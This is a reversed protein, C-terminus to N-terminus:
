IMPFRHSSSTRVHVFTGERDEQFFTRFKGGLEIFQDIHLPAAFSQVGLGLLKDVYRDVRGISIGAPHEEM